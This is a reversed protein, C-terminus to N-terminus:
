ACAIAVSCQEALGVGAGFLMDFRNTMASRENSWQRIFRIAIGTKPDQYQRCIEVAEPEELKMGVLFFAGPYLALAVKGSKGSPSATGPWLTLAASNAPLADVNQYHSGPGYIAPYISLTAASAAGTVDAQVTFTKTGATATSTTRRTMLNVQNTNAFSIKDGKKFTDGTTCTVNISSGSQNAGNVTVSGAWTGATHTYLSNSSYWDFGDSVGNAGTRFAKSLDTQPNFLAIGGTKVSRMVAPPVMLGLEGTDTPCGMEDMAQKAAASTADFTTPNTGLAGTVMSTNQYAFQACFSDLEQRLYAIAPKLYLAEVREEGREMDLAKEISEWELPITRTQDVTISTFPRDFAQPNYTMDNQQVTYRQSLPVNMSKGIAFKQAYDGSYEDSFYPAIQLDNTLLSLGKMAVWQAKNYSSQSPM